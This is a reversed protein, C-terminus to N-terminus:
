KKEEEIANNAKTEFVSCEKGPSINANESRNGVSSVRPRLSGALCANDSFAPNDLFFSSTIALQKQAKIRQWPVTGPPEAVDLTMEGLSHRSRNQCHQRPIGELRSPREPHVASDRGIERRLRLMPDAMIFLLVHVPKGGMKAQRWTRQQKHGVASTNM